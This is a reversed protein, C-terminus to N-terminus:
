RRHIKLTHDADTAFIAMTVQNLFLSTEVVGVLNILQQHLHKIDKIQDYVVDILINGHPTYVYGDSNVSNRISPKGGLSTVYQMVHNSAQAVVELSISHPCTFAEVWKSRDALIVYQRSISALIKEMTHIGGGGKSANLEHDIEGCGDFTIDVFDISQMPILHFGLRRCQLETTTSSTVFRLSYGRALLQSIEQILREISRGAGLGIVMHDKIMKVAELACAKIKQEAM